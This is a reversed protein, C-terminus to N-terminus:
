IVFLLDSDDAILLTAALICALWFYVCFRLQRPKEASGLLSKM